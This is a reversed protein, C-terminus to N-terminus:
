GWSYVVAGVSSDEGCDDSGYRLGCVVCVYRICERAAIGRVVGWVYFGPARRAATPNEHKFNGKTPVTRHYAKKHEDQQM